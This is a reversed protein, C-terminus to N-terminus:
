VIIPRPFCALMNGLKSQIIKITINLENFKQRFNRYVNVYLVTKELLAIHRRLNKRKQELNLVNRGKFTLEKKKRQLSHM